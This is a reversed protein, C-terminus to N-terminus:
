RRRVIFAEGLNVVPVKCNRKSNKLARCRTDTLDVVSVLNPQCVSGYVFGIHSVSIKLEHIKIKKKKKRM